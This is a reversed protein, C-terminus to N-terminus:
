DTLDNRRQICLPSTLFMSFIGGQLRRNEKVADVLQARLDKLKEGLWTNSDQHKNKEDRVRTLVREGAAHQRKAEQEGAQAVKLKERLQEVSETLPFM